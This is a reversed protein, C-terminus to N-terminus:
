YGELLKRFFLKTEGKIYDHRAKTIFVPGDWTSAKATKINILSAAAYGLLLSKKITGTYSDKNAARLLNKAYRMAEGNSTCNIPNRPRLVRSANGGNPATFTGKYKGSVVEASGYSLASNDFYEFVGDEGIELTATPELGEIYREDYVILKGDFILMGCGELQCRQLYFEFDTMGNQSLYPYIQDKVGYYAFDLGHRKAIDQGLQLFGISEWSRNNINEGSLPMSMARLTFLGNEPEIGSVFMKGTRAAGEVLEVKEGKVPNWKSWLGKTDNFRIVLTDSRGSANMEHVCANVSVSPWIDVGEYILKMIHKAEM